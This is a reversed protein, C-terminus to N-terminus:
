VICGRIPVVVGDAADLRRNIVEETEHLGGGRGWQWGAQMRSGNSRNNQLQQLVLHLLMM